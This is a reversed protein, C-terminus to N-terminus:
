YEQTATTGDSYTILYYGHGSGDCDDFKQRKVEYVSSNQSAAQQAAAEAAARIAERAAEEAKVAAIAEQEDESICSRASYGTVDDKKVIYHTATEGLVEIADGRSIVGLIEADSNAEARIYVDDVAYQEVPEEYVVEGDQPANREEGSLLSTYHISAFLGEKVLEPDILIEPQVDRFVYEKGSRDVMTITVIGEEEQQEVSAAVIDLGATNAIELPEEGDVQLLITELVEAAETEAASAQMTDTEGAETAGTEAETVAAELSDTEAETMAAETEAAVAMTGMCLCLVASMSMAALVNRKM